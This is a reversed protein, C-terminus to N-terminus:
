CGKGYGCERVSGTLRDLVWINSTSQYVPSTSYRNGFLGLVGNVVLAVAIVIAGMFFQNQVQRGLGVTSSDGCIVADKATVSIKIPSQVRRASFAFVGFTPAESTQNSRQDNPLVVIGLEGSDLTPTLRSRM